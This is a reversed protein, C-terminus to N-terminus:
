KQVRLMDDQNEKPQKAGCYFHISMDKPDRPAVRQIIGKCVKCVLVPYEKPKVM